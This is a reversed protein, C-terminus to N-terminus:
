ACQYGCQNASLSRNAWRMDDDTIDGIISSLASGSCNEGSSEFKLYAAVWIASPLPEGDEAEIRKLEASWEDPLEAHAKAVMKDWSCNGCENSKLM